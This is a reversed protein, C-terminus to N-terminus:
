SLSPGSERRSGHSPVNLGRLAAQIVPGALNEERGGRGGGFCLVGPLWPSTDNRTPALRPAPRPAAPRRPASRPFGSSRLSSTSSAAGPASPARGAGHLGAAGLGADRRRFFAFM